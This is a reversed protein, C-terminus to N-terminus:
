RGAPALTVEVARDKIVIRKIRLTVLPPRVEARKLRYLPRDSLFERAALDAATRVAGQYQQPLGAISLGEVRSDDLFLDGTEPRYRVRGSLNIKGRVRWAGELVDVAGDTRFGIRDSGAELRVVPNTLGVKAVVLYTKEIPFAARLKQAIQRESLRVVHERASFYLLGTVGVMGAIVLAFLLPVLARLIAPRPRTM